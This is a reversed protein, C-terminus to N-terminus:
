AKQKAKRAPRFFLLAISGLVSFIVGFVFVAEHNVLDWLQGAVISAVLGSSGITASYWGLGSARLQAPFFDSAFAKGVSRYIGQFLGYL